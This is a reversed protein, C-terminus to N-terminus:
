WNTCGKDCSGTPSPDPIHGGLKSLNTVAQLIEEWRDECYTCMSGGGGIKIEQSLSIM